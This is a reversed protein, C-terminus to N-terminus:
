ASFDAASDTKPLNSRPVTVEYEDAASSDAEAESVDYQPRDMGYFDGCHNDLFAYLLVGLVMYLFAHSTTAIWMVLIFRVCTEEAHQQLEASEPTACPLQSAAQEVSGPPWSNDKPRLFFSDPCQSSWGVFCWKRKDGHWDNCRSGYDMPWQLSGVADAVQQNAAKPEGLGSCSQENNCEESCLSKSYCKTGSSDCFLRVKQEICKAKDNVWCWHERSGLEKHFQCGVSTCQCSDKYYESIKRQAVPVDIAAELNAAQIEERRDKDQRQRQDQECPSKKGPKLHFEADTDVDIVIQSPNNEDSKRTKPVVPDQMSQDQSGAPVPEAPLPKKAAEEALRRDEAEKQLRKAEEAQQEDQPRHLKIELIASNEKANSVAVHRVDQRGQPMEKYGEPPKARRTFASDKPPQFPNPLPVSSFGKLVQFQEYNAVDYCKLRAVPINMWIDMGVCLLFLASFVRVKFVSRCFVAYIGFLVQCGRAGILVFYTWPKHMLFGLPALDQYMVFSCLFIIVFLLDLVLAGIITWKRARERLLNWLSGIHKDLAVVHKFRPCKM